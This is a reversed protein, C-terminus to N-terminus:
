YSHLSETLLKELEETDFLETGEDNDILDSPKIIEDDYTECADDMLDDFPCSDPILPLVGIVDLGTVEHDQLTLASPLFCAGEHIFPCM